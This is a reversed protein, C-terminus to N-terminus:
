RHELGLCKDKLANTKISDIGVIENMVRGDSEMVYSQISEKVWENEGPTMNQDKRTWSVRYAAVM